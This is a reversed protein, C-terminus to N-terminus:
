VDNLSCFKKRLAMGNLAIVDNSKNGLSVMYRNHKRFVSTQGIISLSM